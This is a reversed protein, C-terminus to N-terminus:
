ITVYDSVHHIKRIAYPFNVSCAIRLKFDVFESIEKRDGLKTM